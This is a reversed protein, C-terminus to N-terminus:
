TAGGATRRFLAQYQDRLLEIDAQLTVAEESTPDLAELRREAGRWEALVDSVTYIKASLDQTPREIPYFLARFRGEPENLIATRVRVLEGDLRRFAAEALVASSASEFYARRWATQEEPDAPVAAFAEPPTARLTEISDVGLLELAREDADLYRGEIDLTVWAASRWVM